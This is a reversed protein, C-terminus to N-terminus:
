QSQRINILSIRSNGLKNKRSMGAISAKEPSRMCSSSSFSGRHPSAAMMMGKLSSSSFSGSLQRLINKANKIPEQHHPKKM